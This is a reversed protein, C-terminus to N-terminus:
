KVLNLKQFLMLKKEFDGLGSGLTIAVDPVFDTKARIHSVYTELDSYYQQADNKPKHTNKYDLKVEVFWIVFCCSIIITLLTIIMWIFNWNKKNEKTM